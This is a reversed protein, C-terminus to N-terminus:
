HGEAPPDKSPGGSGEHGLQPKSGHADHDKKPEPAQEHEGEHEGKKQPDTGDDGAPEPHKADSPDSAPKTPEIGLQKQLDSAVAIDKDKGRRVALLTLRRNAAAFPDNPILLRSDGFAYVGSIQQEPLGAEILLSRAQDAREFALSWNTRGSGEPFTKADTHGHIQIKNSLTSLIPGLEKLVRALDPKLESRSRDFTMTDGGGDMIQILLGEETVKVIVNRLIVKTTEHQSALKALAALTEAAAKRLGIEESTEDEPPREKTEIKGQIGYASGLLVGSSGSFIGTRFYQSVEAKTEDNTQSVLWLVMFLSMMATVFDAYAVKWAGGHHGHVKNVKKIVIVPPSDKAM